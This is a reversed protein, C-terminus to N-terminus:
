PLGTPGGDRGELVRLIRHRAEPSLEAELGEPVQSSERLARRMVDLHRRFRRCARCILLHTKLSLRERRSLPRDLADSILRSAHRCSLWM